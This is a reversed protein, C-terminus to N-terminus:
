YLGDAGTTPFNRDYSSPSTSQVLFGKSPNWINAPGAYRPDSGTGGMFLNPRVSCIGTYEYPNIYYDVTAGSFSSSRPVGYQTSLTGGTST